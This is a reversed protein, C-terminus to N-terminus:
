GAGSYTFIWRGNGNRWGMVLCGNDDIMKLYCMAEDGVDPLDALLEGDGLVFGKRRPSRPESAEEDEGAIAYRHYKGPRGKPGITEVEETKFRVGRKRMRALQFHFNSQAGGFREASERASLWEGAEFASEIKKALSLEEGSQGNQGNQSSGIKSALDREPEPKASKTPPREARWFVHHIPPHVGPESVRRMERVITYGQKRLVKVAESVLHDNTSNFEKKVDPSSLEQGAFLRAVLLERM